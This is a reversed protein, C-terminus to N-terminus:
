NEKKTHNHVHEDHKTSLIVKTKYFLLPKNGEKGKCELSSKSCSFKRNKTNSIVQELFESPVIIIM